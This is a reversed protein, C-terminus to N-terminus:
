RELEEGPGRGPATATWLAADLEADPIDSVPWDGGYRDVLIAIARRIWTIEGATRGFRSRARGLLRELEADAIARRDSM